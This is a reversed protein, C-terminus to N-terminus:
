KKWFENFNEPNFRAHIRKYSEKPKEIIAWDIKEEYRLFINLIARYTKEVTKWDGIMEFAITEYFNDRLWSKDYGTTVGKKSALFLGTKSQLSKLISLHKKILENYSLKYM